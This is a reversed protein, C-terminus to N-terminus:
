AFIVLGWSESTHRVNPENFTVPSIPLGADVAVTVTLRSNGPKEVCVTNVM